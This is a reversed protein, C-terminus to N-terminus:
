TLLEPAVRDDGWHSAQLRDLRLMINEIKSDANSVIENADELLREAEMSKRKDDVGALKNFVSILREMNKSFASFSVLIEQYERSADNDIWGAKKGINNWESKSIKITQKGSATKLIKM